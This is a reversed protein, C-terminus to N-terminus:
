AFHQCLNLYIQLKKIILKVHTTVFKSKKQIEDMKGQLEM